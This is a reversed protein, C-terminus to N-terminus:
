VVSKRDESTAADLQAQEHRLVENRQAIRTLDEQLRAVDRELRLESLEEEREEQALRKVALELAAQRTELEHARTTSLAVRAELEQVTGALEQLERRKHLLGDAVGALSGGSVIGERDVM